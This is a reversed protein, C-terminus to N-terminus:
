KGNERFAGRLLERRSITRETKTAVVVPKVTDAAEADAMLVELVFRATAVAAEQNEFEFMPSYLSCMEYPGIDSEDGAIFEYEGSPFTHNAKTGALLQWNDAEQPVLMLNMFWPTVLVGLYYDNWPMFGVAEVRLAANLVPVDAMRQDQISTFAAELATSVTELSAITV